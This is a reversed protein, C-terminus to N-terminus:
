DWDGWEGDEKYSKSLCRKCFRQGEVGSLREDPTHGKVFCLLARPNRFYYRTKMKPM